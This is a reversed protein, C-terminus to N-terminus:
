CQFGPCGRQDRVTQFGVRSEDSVHRRQTCGGGFLLTNEGARIIEMHWFRVGKPYKVAVLYLSVRPSWTLNKVIQWGIPRGLRLELENCVNATRLILEDDSDWGSVARWARLAKKVDGSVISDFGERLIDPVQVVPQEARSSVDTMLATKDTDSDQTNQNVGESLLKEVKGIDNKQRAPLLEQEAKTDPVNTTLSKRDTLKIIHYGYPTEVVDSVEGIKLAFAVDEFEKVMKGRDFYGLDGGNIRSPCDSHAKALEEFSVGARIQKLLSDIKEKAKAKGKADLKATSILIHSARIESIDTTKLPKIVDDSIRKNLDFNKDIKQWFGKQYVYVIDDVKAETGEKIYIEKNIIGIKGKRLLINDLKKANFSCPLRWADKKLEIGWGDEIKVKWFGPERVGIFKEDVYTSILDHLRQSIAPPGPLCHKACIAITADIKQVVEKSAYNEEPANVKAIESENQHEKWWKRWDACGGTKGTIRCLASDAALSVTGQVTVYQDKMSSFPVQTRVTTPTKDDLLKILHPIASHAKEPQCSLKFAADEKEVPDDSYLRTIEEQIDIQTNSTLPQLKSDSSLSVQDGNTQFSMTKFVFEFIEKNTKEFRNKSTGCTFTFGLENHVFIVQRLTGSVNGKMNYVHEVALKERKVGIKIFKVSIKKYGPLSAAPPNTDLLNKFQKLDSETIGTSYKIGINEDRFNPNVLYVIQRETFMFALPGPKDPTYLDLEQPLNFSIGFERNSYVQTQQPKRKEERHAGQACAVVFIISVLIKILHHRDIVM